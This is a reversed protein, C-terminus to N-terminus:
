IASENQEMTYANYIYIYIIFFSVQGGHKSAPDIGATGSYIVAFYM